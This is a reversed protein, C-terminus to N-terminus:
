IQQDNLKLIPTYKSWIMRSYDDTRRFQLSSQVGASWPEDGNTTCPVHRQVKRILTLGIYAFDMKKLDLFDNVKFRVLGSLECIRENQGGWSNKLVIYQSDLSEVAMAHGNNPDINERTEEEKFREIM